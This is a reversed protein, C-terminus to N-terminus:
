LALFYPLLYYMFFFYVDWWKKIKAHLWKFYFSKDIGKVILYIMIIWGSAWSNLSFKHWVNLRSCAMAFCSLMLRKAPQLPQPLWLLYRLVSYRLVLKSQPPNPAPPLLYSVSSYLSICTFYEWWRFVIQYLGVSFIKLILVNWVIIRMLLYSM